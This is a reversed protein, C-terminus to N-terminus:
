SSRSNRLTKKLQRSMGREVYHPDAEIEDCAKLFHSPLFFIAIPCLAIAFILFPIQEYWETFSLRSVTGVLCLYFSVVMSAASGGLFIWLPIPDRGLLQGALLLAIGIGTFFFSTVLVAAVVQLVFQRSSIALLLSSVTEGKCEVDFRASTLTAALLAGICYCVSAAAIRIRQAVEREDRSLEIFEAADALEFVLASGGVVIGLLALFGTPGFAIARLERELIPKSSRLPRSKRSSRRKFFKAIPIHRLDLDGARFGFNPGGWVLLKRELVIWGVYSAAAAALATVLTILWQSLPTSSTPLTLGLSQLLPIGIPVAICPIVGLALRSLLASVVGRMSLFSQTTGLAALSVLSVAATVEILAIRRLEVGALCGVYAALPILLAFTAFADVLPPLWIGAALRRGTGTLSLVPWDTVSLHRKAFRQTSFMWASISAVLQIVSYWFLSVFGDGGSPIWIIVTLIALLMAISAAVAPTAHVYQERRSLVCDFLPWRPEM